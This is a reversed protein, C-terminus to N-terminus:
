SRGGGWKEPGSRASNLRFEKTILRHRFVVTM